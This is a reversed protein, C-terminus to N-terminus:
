SDSSRENRRRVVAARISEVIWFGLIPVLIFPPIVLLNVVQQSRITQRLPVLLSPVIVGQVVHEQLEARSLTEPDGESAALEPLTRLWDRGVAVAESESAEELEGRVLSRGALRLAWEVMERDKGEALGPIRDLVQESVQSVLQEAVADSLMQLRGILDEAPIEWEGARFEELRAEIQKPDIASPDEVAIPAAEYVSALVDAAAGGAMPFVHTALQSRRLVAEGGQLGGELMGVSGLTFALLSANVVVTLGRFWRAHRWEWRYAGMWRLAFYSLVGLGAGLLLGIVSLATSEWLLVHIQAGLVERLIDGSTGGGCSTMAVAGLWAGPLAISRRTPARGAGCWGSTM